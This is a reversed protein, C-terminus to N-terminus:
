VHARGIKVLPIPLSVKENLVKSLVRPNQRGLRLLDGLLGPAKGTTALTEFDSIPISRRFAGTMLVVREAARSPAPTALLHAAVLTLSMTKIDVKWGRSRGM